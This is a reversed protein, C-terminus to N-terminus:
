EIKEVTLKINAKKQPKHYKRIPMKQGEKRGKGNKISKPKYPKLDFTSFLAKTGRRTMATSKPAPSQLARKVKPLYKEWRFKNGSAKCTYHAEDYKL